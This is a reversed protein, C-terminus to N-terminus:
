TRKFMSIFIKQEPTVRLSEKIKQITKNQLKAPLTGDDFVSLIKNEYKTFIESLLWAQGMSVYYDDSKIKGCIDITRDVYEDDIYFKLLMVIGARQIWNKSNFCLSEVYTYFVDRNDKIFKFTAVTNDCVAWNNIFPLFNELCKLYEIVEMKAYGIVYGHLMNEEYYNHEVHNLFGQWDGKVITKAIKKLIPDRVGIVNDETKLIKIYFQQYKFDRISKLDEIFKEYETKDWTVIKELENIM